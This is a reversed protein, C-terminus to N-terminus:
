AAPVFLEAQKALNTKVATRIKRNYKKRIFETNHERRVNKMEEAYSVCRLYGTSVVDLHFFLVLVCADQEDIALQIISYPLFIPAILCWPLSAKELVKMSSKQILLGLVMYVYSAALFIIILIIFM